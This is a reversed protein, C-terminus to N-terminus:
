LVLRITTATATITTANENSLWALGNFAVSVGAANLPPVAYAVICFRAACYGVRRGPEWASVLM